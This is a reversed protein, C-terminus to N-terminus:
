TPEKSERLGAPEQAPPTLAADIVKRLPAHFRVRIAVLPDDPSTGDELKNLFREVFLLAERLTANERQLTAIEDDPGGTEIERFCSCEWRHCYNCKALLSM